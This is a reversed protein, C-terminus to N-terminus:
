YKFFNVAIKASKKEALKKCSVINLESPLAVPAHVIDDRTPAASTTPEETTPSLETPRSSAEESEGVPIAFDEDNLPEQLLENTQQDDELLDDIEDDNPVGSDDDNEILNVHSLGFQINNRANAEPTPLTVVEYNRQPVRNNQVRVDARGHNGSQARISASSGSSAAPNSRPAVANTSQNSVVNTRRSTTQANNSSTSTLSTVSSTSQINTTTPTHSNSSSVPSVLRSPVSWYSIPGVASRQFFVM